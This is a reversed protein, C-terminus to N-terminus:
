FFLLPVGELLLFATTANFSRPDFVLSKRGGPLLFATTANFRKFIQERVGSIQSAPVGHHCQFEVGFQVLLGGEVLFCSRRPPM